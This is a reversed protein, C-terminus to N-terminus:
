TPFAEPWAMPRVLEPKGPDMDPPAAGFVLGPNISPLKTCEEDEGEIDVLEAM